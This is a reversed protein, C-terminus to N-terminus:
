VGDAAAVRAYVKDQWRWPWFVGEYQDPYKARMDTLYDRRFRPMEIFHWHFEAGAWAGLAGTLWGLIFWGVIMLGESVM